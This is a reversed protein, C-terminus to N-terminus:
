WNYFFKWPFCIIDFRRKTDSKNLILSKKKEQAKEEKSSKEKVSKKFKEKRWHLSISLLWFM